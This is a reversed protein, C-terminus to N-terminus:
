LGLGECLVEFDTVTFKRGILLWLENRTVMVSKERPKILRIQKRHVTFGVDFEAIVHYSDNENAADVRAKCRGWGALYVFVSDGVKIEKM